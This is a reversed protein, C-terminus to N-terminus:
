FNAYHIETLFLPPKVNEKNLIFFDTILGSSWDCTSEKLLRQLLVYFSSLLANQLLPELRPVFLTYSTLLCSLPFYVARVTFPNASICSETFNRMRQSLPFFLLSLKFYINIKQLFQLLSPFCSCIHCSPLSNFKPIALFKM